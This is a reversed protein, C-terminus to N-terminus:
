RCRGCHGRPNENQRVAFQSSWLFSSVSSEAWTYGLIPSLVEFLVKFHYQQESAVVYILEDFPWNNHRMIATGIDQTIYISTGDKRLLVKKGLGCDELDVWIAGDDGKYFVGRALGDLVEQKGLKYTDHEFKSSM